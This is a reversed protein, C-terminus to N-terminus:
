RLGDKVADSVIRMGAPGSAQLPRELFKAQRGDDHHYELHEHQAAAYPAAAGSGFGVGVTKGDASQAVTGSNQLTGEEIPVIRVAEDLVHEGWDNLGRAAGAQMRSAADSLGRLLQSADWAAPM